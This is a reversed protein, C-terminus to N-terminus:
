PRVRCPLVEQNLLYRIVDDGSRLLWAVENSIIPPGPIVVSDEKPNSGLSGRNGPALLNTAEEAGELSHTAGESEGFAVSDNGVPFLAGRM